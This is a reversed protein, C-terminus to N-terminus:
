DLGWFVTIFQQLLCTWVRQLVGVKVWCQPHLQITWWPWESLIVTLGHQPWMVHDLVQEDRRVVRKEGSTGHVCLQWLLMSQVLQLTVTHCIQKRSDLWEARNSHVWKSTNRGKVDILCVQVLKWTEVKHSVDASVLCSIVSVNSIVCSIDSNPRHTRWRDPFM